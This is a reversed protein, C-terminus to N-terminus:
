KCFHPHVKCIPTRADQWARIDSNYFKVLGSEFAEPAPTVDGYENTHNKKMTKCAHRLTFELLGKNKLRYPSLDVKNSYKNEWISSVSCFKALESHNRQYIRNAEATAAAADRRVKEQLIAATAERKAKAKAAAVEEDLKAKAAADAADAIEKQIKPSTKALFLLKEVSDDVGFSNQIIRGSDEQYCLVESGEGYGGMSNKANYFWGWVKSQGSEEQMVKPDSDQRYSDRDKLNSILNERCAKITRGGPTLMECGATLLASTIVVAALRNM